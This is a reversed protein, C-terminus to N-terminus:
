VQPFIANNFNPDQYLFVEYSKEEDIDKMFYRLEGNISNVLVRAIGFRYHKIM